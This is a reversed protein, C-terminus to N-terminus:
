HHHPDGNQKPARSSDLSQDFPPGSFSDFRPLQPQAACRYHPPDVFNVCGSLYISRLPVNVWHAAASNSEEPSRPAFRRHGVGRDLGVTASGKAIEFKEKGKMVVIVDDRMELVDGTVQYSKPGAWAVSALLGLTAGVIKTFRNM